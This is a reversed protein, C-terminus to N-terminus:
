GSVCGSEGHRVLDKEAAQLEAIEAVIRAERQLKVRAMHHQRALIACALGVQHFGNGEQRGPTAQASGGIGIHGPDTHFGPEGDKSLQVAHITGDLDAGARGSGLLSLRPAKPDVACRCLADVFEEIM